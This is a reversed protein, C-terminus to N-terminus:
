GICKVGPGVQHDVWDVTKELSKEKPRFIIRKARAHSHIFENWWDTDFDVFDRLHSISIKFWESIDNTMFLETAVINARLDKAQFELRTFGRKNYVTIMRESNNSGFEVTCTGLEGNDKTKYPSQTIKFAQRKKSIVEGQTMQFQM